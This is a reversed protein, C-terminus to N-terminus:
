QEADAVSINPNFLNLFRGYRGYEGSSRCVSARYSLAVARDTFDYEHDVFEMSRGCRRQQDAEVRLRSRSFTSLTWGLPVTVSPTTSPSVAVISGPVHIRVADRASACMDDGVPCVDDLNTALRTLWASPSVQASQAAGIAALPASIEPRTKSTDTAVDAGPENSVFLVVPM